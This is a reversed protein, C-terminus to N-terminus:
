QCPVARGQPLHDAEALYRVLTCRETHDAPVSAGSCSALALCLSLTVRRM